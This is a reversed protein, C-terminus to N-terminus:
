VTMFSSARRTPENLAALATRSRGGAAVDRWVDAAVGARASGEACATVCTAVGDAGEVAMRADGAGEEDVCLEILASADLYLDFGASRSTVSRFSPM